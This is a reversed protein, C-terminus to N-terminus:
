YEAGAANLVNQDSEADEMANLISMDENIRVGIEEFLEKTRVTILGCRVLAPLMLDKLSHVQGPPLAQVLGAEAAEALGTFFDDADIDSVELVKLFGPDARNAITGKGGGTKQAMVMISVVDFAFQALDERDDSHMERILPGLYSHGFSVHRAEDRM